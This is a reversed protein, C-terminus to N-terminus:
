QVRRVRSLGRDPAWLLFSGLSAKRIKVTDGPRPRYSEPTTERQEWVQGNDLTVKWRGPQPLSGVSVVKATIADVEEREQSLRKESMGFAAAGSAPQTTAAAPAAPASAAAVPASATAAAASSTAVSSSASAPRGFIADYCALRAADDAIGACRAPADAAEVSGSAWSISVLVLM